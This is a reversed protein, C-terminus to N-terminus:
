AHLGIHQRVGDIYMKMRMTPAWWEVLIGFIHMEYPHILINILKLLYSSMPTFYVDHAM